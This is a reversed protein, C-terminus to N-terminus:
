GERRLKEVYSDIKFIERPIDIKQPCKDKCQGCGICKDAQREPILERTYSALYKRRLRRYDSSQTDPQIYGENVCKNYHALLRPIDMGYPCPMCYGCDNCPVAPYTAFVNAVGQLFILEEETLATLPSYSGVNDELHELYTMGSLVTLVGPYSGCFRFAWSAISRSPEKEQLTQAVTAPLSALRGGLLPEMIVVPIGLAELKEYLYSANANRPNIKRANEWDVYNMQIQVFDWKYQPHLEMLYDFTKDDGHFSFGLNRIRGAQREQMLFDLVGNEVFRKQFNEQGSGISHLLYYDIYDVGLESFSKEYMAKSSELTWTAPNFTSLKTAVFWKDRPHRALALGTAKESEGKCYIPATDFYNVGMEIAKDVLRNIQEQDLAVGPNERASGGGVVPLRMMGYGLLSVKDSTSPNIRYTMEGREVTKKKDSSCASVAVAGALAASGKIFDRRNMTKGM